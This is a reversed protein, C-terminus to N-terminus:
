LIGSQHIIKVKQKLKESFTRNLKSSRVFQLYNLTLTSTILSTFVKLELEFRLSKQGHHLIKDLIDTNKTEIRENLGKLACASNHTTMRPDIYDDRPSKDNEGPVLNPNELFSRDSSECADARELKIPWIRNRWDYAEWFAAPFQVCKQCCFKM